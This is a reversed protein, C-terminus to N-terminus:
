EMSSTSEELKNSPGEVSSNSNFNSSLANMKKYKLPTCGFKKKFLCYFHKESNFNVYEVIEFVTKDSHLLLEAAVSLRKENLLESLKKKYNKQIIRSTQKTSLHLTDALSQLTTDERFNNIVDDIIVLYSENITYMNTKSLVKDSHMNNAYINYFILKLVSVAIENVLNADSYFLSQLEKCFFLLSENMDIKFPSQMLFFTDMFKSFESSLKQTKDFSFLIRQGTQRITRHKYFPPICVLCNKFTLVGDEQYLTLPSEDVYFLEHLVHYHLNKIEYGSDVIIDVPEEVIANMSLDQIRFKLNKSIRETSM